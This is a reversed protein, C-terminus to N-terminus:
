LDYQKDVCYSCVFQLADAYRHFYVREPVIRMLPTLDEVTVGDILHYSQSDRLKVTFMEEVGDVPAGNFLERATTYREITLYYRQMCIITNMETYVGDHIFSRQTSTLNEYKIPTSM